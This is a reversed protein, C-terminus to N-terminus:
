HASWYWFALGIALGAAVVLLVQLGVSTSTPEIPRSGEVDMPAATGPEVLVISPKEGAPASAPRTRFKPASAGLQFMVKIESHQVDAPSATSAAKMAKEYLERVDAPMEDVSDYEKQNVTIKTSM